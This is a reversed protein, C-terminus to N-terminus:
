VSELIAVCLIFVSRLEVFIDSVSEIFQTNSLMMFENFTNRLKTESEIVNSSLDEIKGVLDKTKEGFRASYNRLAELLAIDSALNWKQSQSKLAELGEM